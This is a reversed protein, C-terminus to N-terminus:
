LYTFSVKDEVRCKYNYIQELNNRFAQVTACDAISIPASELKKIMEKHSYVKSKLLGLVASVFSGRNYGKYYPAFDSIQKAVSYSKGMNTIVLNGEEFYKSVTKVGAFTQQKASHLDMIIRESAQIGFQPFDTMFKKFQLYPTLGEACYMDLYDLKTWNKQNTNLKQVETIGYGPIVFYYVPMGTEICAKLRHQGDIVEYKENVIIPCILQKENFSQVLRKIHLLNVNRNEGMIIFKGYDHTKKIDTVFEDKPTAFPQNTTSRANKTQNNM